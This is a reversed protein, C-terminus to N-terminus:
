YPLTKLGMSIAKQMQEEVIGDRVKEYAVRQSMTLQRPDFHGFAYNLLTCARHCCYCMTRGDELLEGGGYRIYFIHHYEMARPKGNFFSVKAGCGHCKRMDHDLRLRKVSNPTRTGRNGSLRGIQENKGPDCSIKEEQLCRYGHVHPYFSIVVDKRSRGNIVEKYFDVTEPHSFNPPLSIPTKQVTDMLDDDSIGLFMNDLPLCTARGLYLPRRPRYIAKGITELLNRDGELFVVFRADCLYTPMLLTRKLGEVIEVKGNNWIRSVLDKKVNGNAALFGASVQFEECRVGPCDVRIHMKLANFRTLFDTSESMPIMLANTVLGAMASKTPMSKTQGTNELAYCQRIGAHLLSLVTM